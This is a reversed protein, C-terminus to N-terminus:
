IVTRNTSLLDYYIERDHEIADRVAPGAVTNNVNMYSCPTIISSVIISPMTFKALVLANISADRM